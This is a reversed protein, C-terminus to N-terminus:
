PDNIKGIFLPMQNRKDFITVLFPQDINVTLKQLDQAISLAIVGLTTASTAVTGFEDVNLLSQQMIDGIVLRENNTTLYPLQSEGTFVNQM